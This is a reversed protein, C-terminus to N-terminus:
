SIEELAERALPAHVPDFSSSIDLGSELESRARREDGLALSIMGAHYLLRADRTGFRLAEDAAERAEAYRGAAYLSWALADWGYIDGRVDLEASALDVAEDPRLGHDAYFLVLQRNYVQRNARALRAIVEVTDYQQRALSDDGRLAYLDGLAAVYGPDPLFAIAKRYHYIAEDFRGRAALARALGARPLHYGPSLRLASRYLEVADAYRGTELELLARYSRYWALDAGELGAEVASREAAGALRAAGETDGHLYAVRAQRVLVPAIGPLRRTLYDYAQIAEEYRGLEWSADGSILTVSPDNPQESLLENSTRLAGVFDHTTLLVSAMLSRAEVDGPSIALARTLAEDARAFAGLDGTLRGRQSHLNGLFTLDLTSPQLAVQGEYFSILRDLERLRSREGVGGGLSPEPLDASVASVRGRPDPRLESAAYTALAVLAAVAVLAIARRM